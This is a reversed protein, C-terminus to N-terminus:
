HRLTSELCSSVQHQTLPRVFRRLAAWPGHQSGSGRRSSPPRGSRGSDISYTLSHTLSHSLSAISSDRSASLSRELRAKGSREGDDHDRYDDDSASAEWPDMLESRATLQPRPQGANKPTALQKGTM